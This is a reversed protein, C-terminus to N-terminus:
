ANNVEAQNERAEREKIYEASKFEINEHELLQGSIAWYLLDIPCNIASCILKHLVIYGGDVGRYEPSAEKLKFLEPTIIEIASNRVEVIDELGAAKIIAEIFRIDIKKTMM